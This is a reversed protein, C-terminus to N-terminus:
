GNVTHDNPCENVTHDNPCENVTHDNPCENVTHDNPCENVTHDNPCENVTHDNPCENVVNDGSKKVEEGMGDAGTIHVYEERGVMSPMASGVRKREDLPLYSAMAREQSIEGEQPPCSVDM